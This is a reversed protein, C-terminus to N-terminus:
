RLAEKPRQEVPLCHNGTKQMAEARDSSPSRGLPEGPHCMSDQRSGTCYAGARRGPPEKMWLAQLSVDGGKRKLM